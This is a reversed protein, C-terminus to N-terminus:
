PMYLKKKKSVIPRWKNPTENMLLEFDCKHVAKVFSSAVTTLQM